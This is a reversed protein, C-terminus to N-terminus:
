SISSQVAKRNQFITDDQNVMTAIELSRVIIKAKIGKRIYNVIVTEMSLLVQIIQTVM